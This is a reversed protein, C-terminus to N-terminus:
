GCRPRRSTRGACASSTARRSRDDGPVLRDPQRAPAGQDRRAGRGARDVTRPRRRLRRPPAPEQWGEGGAGAAPQACPPRCAARPAGLRWRPRRRHSLGAAGDLVAGRGDARLLRHVGGRGGTGGGGDRRCGSSPRRSAGRGTAPRKAEAIWTVYERQHSYSLRTFRDTLAATALAERLDDPVDVTRAQDDREVTVRVEDGPGKGLETRIAKLVGLVQQGGMSVISGRYAIGDFTARVPIRAKGGLAEVVEKPVPM